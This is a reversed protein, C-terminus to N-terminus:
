PSQSNAEFISQFYNLGFKEEHRVGLKSLSTDARRKPTSIESGPEPM